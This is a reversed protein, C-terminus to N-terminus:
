VRNDEEFSISLESQDLVCKSCKNSELWNDSRNECLWNRIAPFADEELLVRVANKIQQSVPYVTLDWKAQWDDRSSRATPQFNQVSYQAELIPYAMRDKMIRTIQQRKVTAPKAHFVMAQDIAWSLGQSDFDRFLFGNGKDNATDLQSVTDHIGGTDRAVPLSGYIQCIMQPLGCPEFLSPM